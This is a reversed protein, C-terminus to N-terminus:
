FMLNYRMLFRDADRGSEHKMGVLLIFFNALVV